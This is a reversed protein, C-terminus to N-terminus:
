CVVDDDPRCDDACQRTRQIRQLANVRHCDLRLIDGDSLLHSVRLDATDCAHPLKRSQWPQRHWRNCLRRRQDSRLVAVRFHSAVLPWRSLPSRTLLGTAPTLTCATTVNDSTAGRSPSRSSDDLRLYHLRWVDSLLGRAMDNDARRDDACELTWSLRQLAHQWHHHLGM